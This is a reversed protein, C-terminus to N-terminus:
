IGFLNHIIDAIKGLLYDDQDLEDEIGAEVEEDYDEDKRAALREEEKDYNKKLHNKMAEVLEEMQVSDIFGVGLVQPHINLNTVNKTHNNKFVHGRGTAM